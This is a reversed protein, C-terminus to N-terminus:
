FGKLKYKFILPNSEPTLNYRAIDINNNAAINIVGIATSYGILEGDHILLPYSMFPFEPDFEENLLVSAVEETTLNVTVLANRLGKEPLNVEYLLAVADANSDVSCIRRLTYKNRLDAALEDYNMQRQGEPIADQTNFIFTYAPTYSTETLQFVSNDYQQTILLKHDQSENFPSKAFGYGRNETFPDFRNVVQHSVYDYLIFNYHTDNSRESYLYALHTDLVHLNNYWNDLPYIQRFNGDKDYVYIAQNARSLIYVESDYVDFDTLEIYEQPGRGSRAIKHLYKGEESFVFITNRFRDMVYFCGDHVVLKDIANILNDEDNSLELPICTYSECLTSMSQTTHVDVEICKEQLVGKKTSNCSTLLLLIVALFFLCLKNM